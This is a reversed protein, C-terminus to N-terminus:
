WASSALSSSCCVITTAEVTSPCSMWCTLACTNEADGEPRTNIASSMAAFVMGFSSSPSSSGISASVAVSSAPRGSASGKRERQGGIVQVKRFQELVLRKAIRRLEHVGALAVAPLGPLACAPLALWRRYSRCGGSLSRPEGRQRLRRHLSCAAVDVEEGPKLHIDRDLKPTRLQRHGVHEAEPGTRDDLEIPEGAFGDVDKHVVPENGTAFDHDHVFVEAHADDFHHP